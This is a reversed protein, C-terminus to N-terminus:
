LVPPRERLHCLVIREVHCAHELLYIDELRLGFGLDSEDRRSRLAIEKPQGPHGQIARSQGPNSKISRSQGPNSKIARSQEQHVKIARSQGQNASELDSEDRRSCVHGGASALRAHKDVLRLRVGELELLGCLGEPARIPSEHRWPSRWQTEDRLAGSLKTVSLCSMAGRLAGSLKTM